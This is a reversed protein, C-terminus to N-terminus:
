LTWKLMLNRKQILRNFKFKNVQHHSKRRHYLRRKNKRPKLYKSSNIVRLQLAEIMHVVTKKPWKPKRRVKLDRVWNIRTLKMKFLVKRSVRELLNSVKRLRKMMIEKLKWTIKWSSEKLQKKLSTEMLLGQM